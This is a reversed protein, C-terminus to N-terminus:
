PRPIGSGRWDTGVRREIFTAIQDPTWVDATVDRVPLKPKDALDVPNTRLMGKRVAAELAKRLTVQLRRVSSPGLGKPQDLPKGDKGKRPLRGSAAREALFAEVMVPTLKDLRVHGLQPVIHRKVASRYWSVSAAELQAMGLSGLWDDLYQGLTISGADAVRGEEVDALRANLWKRAETRTDFRRSRRKRRGQGDLYSYAAEVRGDKDRVSGTGKPRRTGDSM